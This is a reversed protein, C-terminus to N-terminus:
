EELLGAKKLESAFSEEDMLQVGLSLAKDYKSGANEGYIVIDTSKSVSGTVNAQLQQLLATAESRGMFSLTGTLVVTKGSFVSEYSQKQQYSM